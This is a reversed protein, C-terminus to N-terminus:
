IKILLGSNGARSFYGYGYGSKCFIVDNDVYLVVYETSCVGNDNSYSIKDGAKWAWTQEEKYEEWIDNHDTPYFPFPSNDESFRATKFVDLYVYEGKEWSCRKMKKGNVMAKMAESTNMQHICNMNNKLWEYYDDQHIVNDFDVNYSVGNDDKVVYYQAPTNVNEITTYKGTRVLSNITKIFRVRSCIRIPTKPSMAKNKNPEIYDNEHIVVNAKISFNRDDDDMVYYTDKYIDEVLFNDGKEILGIVNTISRVRSGIKIPTKNSMAKDKNSEIYDNEHVVTSKDILRNCGFDDNVDCFTLGLLLRM